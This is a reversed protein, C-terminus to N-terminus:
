QRTRTPDPDGSPASTFTAADVPPAGIRGRADDLLEALTQSLPITPSWGTAERLRRADGVSVPNEVPRQLTPDLDLHLPASSLSILEEALSQISVDRGSAVNYVAGSEGHEMAARYARVVDRVDTFDRRPTLNGVTISTTGDHEAQAVRAALAASVFRTSQGPGIHNFSRVRVTELGHGLWAQLAQYEAAVKSAGYPSVPRLPQDETIPLDTGDVQGYVDASSVVLVRRAGAERAAILTHLTGLANIEFAAVPDDWSGGVDSFGALHYVVEPRAEALAPGISAPDCIDVGTSRDAGVVEDGADTLHALLHPGVFGHSGTVVARVPAPAHPVHRALM